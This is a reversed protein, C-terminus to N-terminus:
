EVVEDIVAFVAVVALGVVVPCRCADNCGFTCLLCGLADCCGRLPGFVGSVNTLACGSWCADCIGGSMGDGCEYGGGDGCLYALM